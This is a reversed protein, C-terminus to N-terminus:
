KEGSLTKVLFFLGKFTFRNEFNSGLLAMKDRKKRVTAYPAM